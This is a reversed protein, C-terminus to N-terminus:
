PSSGPPNTWALNLKTNVRGRAPEEAARHRPDGLHDDAGLLRRQRLVRVGLLRVDHRERSRTRRRRDRPQRGARRHRRHGHGPAARLRRALRTRQLPGRRGPLDAALPNTWTLRAGQWRVLGNINQVGVQKVHLTVTATSVHGLGDDLRYTLSDPGEYDTAPTYRVHWTYDDDRVATATGSSPPSTITMTIPNESRDNETVPLNNVTNKEADYTDNRASVVLAKTVTVAVSASDQVNGNQDSVTYTFHDTGTTSSTYVVKRRDTDFYAYDGLTWGSVDVTDTPLLGTDNALVDIVKDENAPTSATDNVAQVNRALVVIDVSGSGLSAGTFGDYVDYHITETGPTTGTLQGRGGQGVSLEGLTSSLSNQGDPSFFDSSTSNTDNAGLDVDVIQGVYATVTDPASAYDGAATVTITVTAPAGM